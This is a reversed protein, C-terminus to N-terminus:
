QSCKVPMSRAYAAFEKFDKNNMLQDHTADGTGYPPSYYWFGKNNRFTDRREIAEKAGKAADRAPDGSVGLWRWAAINSPPDTSPVRGWRNEVSVIDAYKFMKLDVHAVGPNMIILADSNKERVLSTRETNWDHITKHQEALSKIFPANFMKAEPDDLNFRACDFFIGSFGNDIAYMVEKDIDTSTKILACSHKLVEKALEDEGQDKLIKAAVKRENTMSVYILTRIHANKFLKATAKDNSGENLVVFNPKEAIIRDYIKQDTGYYLVYFGNGQPCNATLRLPIKYTLDIFEFKSPGANNTKPDAQSPDNDFMIALRLTAKASDKSTVAFGEAKMNPQFEKLKEATVLQLKAKEDYKLQKDDVLWLANGYFKNKSDETSTLILFGKLEEVYELSSLHFPVPSKDPSLAKFEFFPEIELKTTGGTVDAKYIIVNNSHCPERFGIFLMEKGNINRYALGEIRRGSGCTDDKYKSFAETKLSDKLNLEVAKEIKIDSPKSCDGTHLSFKFLRSWDTSQHNGIIYFNGKGDMATAEWKPNSSVSPFDVKDNWIVGDQDILVWTTKKGNAVPLYRDNAVLLYKGSCVPAVGSPELGDVAVKDKSFSKLEPLEAISVVQAGAFESGIAVNCIVSLILLRLSKGSSVHM